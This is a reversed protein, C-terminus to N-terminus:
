YPLDLSSHCKSHLLQPSSPLPQHDGPRRHGCPESEQLFRLSCYPSPATSSPLESGTLLAQTRFDGQGAGQSVRM